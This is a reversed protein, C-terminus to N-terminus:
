EDLWDATRLRPVRKFESTRPTVLTVELALAHGAILTDYAGLPRGTKELESRVVEAAAAAAIDFPVVEFQRAFARLRDDVEHRNTGKSAGFMLEFWAVSSVVVERAPVGGLRKTLHPNRGNLLSICISTDLLFKM